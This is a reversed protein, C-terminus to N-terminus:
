TIMVYTITSEANRISSTGGTIIKDVETCVVIIRNSDCAYYFSRYTYQVAIDQLWTTDVHHDVYYLGCFGYALM